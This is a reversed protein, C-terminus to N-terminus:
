SVHRLHLKQPSLVSRIAVIKEGDTEINLVFSVVGGVRGVVAPWGNM